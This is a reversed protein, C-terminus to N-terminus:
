FRHASVDLPMSYKSLMAAINKYSWQLRERNLPEPNIAKFRLSQVM